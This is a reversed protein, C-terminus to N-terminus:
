SLYRDEVLIATSNKIFVMVEELDMAEVSDMGGGLDMAEVSDMGEVMDVELGPMM